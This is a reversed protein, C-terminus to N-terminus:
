NFVLRTDRRRGVKGAVVSDWRIRRRLLDNSLQLLLISIWDSQLFKLRLIVGLIKRCLPHQVLRIAKISDGIIRFSKVDWNRWSELLGSVSKCFLLSKKQVFLFFYSGKTATRRSWNKVFFSNREFGGIPRIFMCRIQSTSIFLCFTICLFLPLFVDANETTFRAPPLRKWLRHLTNCLVRQHLAHASELVGVDPIRLLRLLHRHHRVVGINDGPQTFANGMVYGPACGVHQGQHRAVRRAFSANEGSREFARLKSACSREIFCAVLILGVRRREVGDDGEGDQQGGPLGRAFKCTPQQGFPRTRQLHSCGFQCCSGCRVYACVQEDM